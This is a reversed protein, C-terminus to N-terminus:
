RTIRVIYQDSMGPEVEITRILNTNISSCLDLVKKERAPETVVQEINDDSLVDIM